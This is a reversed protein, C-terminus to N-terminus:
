NLNMLTALAGLWYYKELAMVQKAVYDDNFMIILMSLLIFSDQQSQGKGVCAARGPHSLPSRTPSIVQHNHTQDVTSAFKREPMNKGKVEASAHSFLLQHSQFFLQTLVSILFGPFVHVDGVAM